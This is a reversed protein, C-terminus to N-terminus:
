CVVSFPLVQMGIGSSLLARLLEKSAEGPFRRGPRDPCSPYLSWHVRRKSYAITLIFVFVSISTEGTSPSSNFSQFLDGFTILRRVAYYASVHGAERVGQVARLMTDGCEYYHLWFLTRTNHDVYYYAWITQNETKIIDLVLDYQTTPFNITGLRARERDLHTAFEQIEDSLVPDYM